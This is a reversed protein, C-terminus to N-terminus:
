PKKEDTKSIIITNDPRLKINLESELKEKLHKKEIKIQKEIERKDQRIKNLEKSYSDYIYFTAIGTNEPDLLKELEEVPSIKM